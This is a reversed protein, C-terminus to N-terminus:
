LRKFFIDTNRIEDTYNNMDFVDYINKKLVPVIGSPNLMFLQRYYSGTADALDITEQMGDISAVRRAWNYVNPYNKLQGGPAKFIVTYAEDFRCVFPWLKLDSETFKDGLVFRSDSLSNELKSLGELVDNAAEDFAMQSTAFGCRYVGNQLTNYYYKNVKNIDDLLSAPRLDIPSKNRSYTNLLRLIENSENSVITNTTLDVLLPATCRGKYQGDTCHSYVAALEKAECLPDPSVIADIIWGGKSAKEANDVLRTVSVPSSLLKLGM